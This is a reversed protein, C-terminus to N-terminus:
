SRWREALDNVPDTMLDVVPVDVLIDDRLV